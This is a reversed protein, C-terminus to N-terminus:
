CYLGLVFPLARGGELSEGREDSKAPLRQADHAWMELSQMGFDFQFSEGSLRSLEPAHQRPHVQVVCKRLVQM